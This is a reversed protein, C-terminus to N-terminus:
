SRLFSIILFLVILSFLISLRVLHNRNKKTLTKVEKNQGLYSIVKAVSKEINDAFNEDKVIYDCIGNRMLDLVVSPEKQTSIAIIPIKEIIKSLEVGNMASKNISNLKYDMVMVDMQYHKDLLLEEGTSFCKVKCDSRQSLEWQILERIFECDEVIGINFKRKRIKM